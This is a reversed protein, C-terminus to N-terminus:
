NANEVNQKCHTSTEVEVSSKVSRFVDPEENRLAIDISLFTFCSKDFCIWVWYIDRCKSCKHLIIMCSLADDVGGM